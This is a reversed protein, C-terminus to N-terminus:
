RYGLKGVAVVVLRSIEPSDSVPIVTRKRIARFRNAGESVDATM